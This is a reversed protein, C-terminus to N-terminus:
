REPTHTTPLRLTVLVQKVSNAAIDRVSAQALGLRHVPWREPHTSIVASTHGSTSLWSVLHDPGLPGPLCAGQVHDRLNYPSGFTGGTDTAYLMNSFDMDTADGLLGLGGADISATFSMNSVAALPAGHPSVTRVPVVARCAALERAFLAVAADRNGRARSLSEYHFGTEHGLEAIRRMAREPFRMRADCRFYYTSVVRQAAEAEAMVVARNPMRDVDHRLYVRKPPASDGRTPDQRHQFYSRIPHCEFGATRLDDLLTLYSSLLHAM